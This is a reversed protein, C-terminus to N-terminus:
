KKAKVSKLHWVHEQAADAKRRCSESWGCSCVATWASEERSREGNHRLETRKHGDASVKRDASTLLPTPTSKAQVISFGYKGLDSWSERQRGSARTPVGKATTPDLVYREGDVDHVVFYQARRIGYLPDCRRLLDGVKPCVQAPEEVEGTTETEVREVDVPRADLMEERMSGLRAALQRGFEAAIDEHRKTEVDSSQLNMLALQEWKKTVSTDPDLVSSVSVRGDEYVSVFLMGRLAPKPFHSM